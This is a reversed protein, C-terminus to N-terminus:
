YVVISPDVGVFRPCGADAYLQVPYRFVTGYFYDFLIFMNFAPLYYSIDPSPM